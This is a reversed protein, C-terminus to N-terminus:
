ECHVFLALSRGTVGYKDGARGRYAPENGTINTDVLLNWLSGGPCEPLTAEVLDHHSNFVLLMAAETGRQRLGSPRARGDIMMAFCHMNQDSWDATQMEQGSANIWTVDKVELEEDYEGTLFRNRRLIPYRHRLATLKRVFDTLPRGKEAVDWDLWGIQNDQCYANNNGNQTRGFEDGALLMPTGQSLLLTALLNRIQRGRLANIAPDDTPGEVGCNWSRNDSSGDRNDEGNAENHREEFSVLDTLTFGDHCAVFNVSAYTRRGSPAYIDSSGTL